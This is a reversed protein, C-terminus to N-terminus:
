EFSYTAAVFYRRGLVDYTSPDTNSQQNTPYIIPEEDTLNTVGLRLRLGEMANGSFAYGLTLDFYHVADLKFDPYSTDTTSDVYRWRLNTDFGSIAYSFSTTTKWEPLVDFSSSATGAFEELAEGKIQAQKWNLLNTAIFKVDFESAGFETGYELQIDIGKLETTAINTDVELAEIITGTGVDRQFFNCYFNNSSFDANFTPDFCREVFVDADISGVGDEISIEYYDIAGQFASQGGFVLGLTFTDATEETLLPNGGSLGQFQTNTFV